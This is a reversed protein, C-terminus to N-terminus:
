GGFRRNRQEYEQIIRRLEDDSFDPWLTDTFEIEAYSGRWMMFNSIRKEGSTRILLDVDPVDPHYVNNSISEESIDGSEAAAIAADVIEQKGGYNFCVCLTGNSNGATQKEAAEMLKVLSADLKDRSGLFLLRIGEKHLDALENKLVWTAFKMLASVEEGERKWNETSFAYVSLYDINLEQITSLLGKLRKFGARHGDITSVGQAKAWRRNGDMIIGVHQPGDSM